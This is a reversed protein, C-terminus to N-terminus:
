GSKVAFHVESAIIGWKRQLVSVYLSNLAQSYTGQQFAVMKRSQTQHYLTSLQSQCCLNDVCLPVPTRERILQFATFTETNSIRAKWSM